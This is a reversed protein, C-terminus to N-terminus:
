NINMSLIERCIRSRDISEDIWSRSMSDSLKLIDGGGGFITPSGRLRKNQEIWPSTNPARPANAELQRGM